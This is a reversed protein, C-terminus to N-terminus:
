KNILFRELPTRILDLLQSYAPLMVLIKMSLVETFQNKERTLFAVRSSM